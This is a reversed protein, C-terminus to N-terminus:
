DRKPTLNGFVTSKSTTSGFIFATHIIKAVEGIETVHFLSLKKGYHNNLQTVGSQWGKSTVLAARVNRNPYKFSIDVLRGFLTLYQGVPVNTTWKKCEILLIDNDSELYVDIQHKYGSIGEIRNKGGTSRKWIINENPNNTFRESISFVLEEYENSTM